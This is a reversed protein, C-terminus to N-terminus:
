MSCLCNSYIKDCEFTNKIEREYIYILSRLNRGQKVTASPYLKGQKVREMATHLATSLLEATKLYLVLQEAHSPLYDCVCVCHLEIKIRIMCVFCHPCNIRFTLLVNSIYSHIASSLGYNKRKFLVSRMILSMQLRNDKIGSRTLGGGM